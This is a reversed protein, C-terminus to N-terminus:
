PAPLGYLHVELGYFTQKDLIHGKSALAEPILDHPDTYWNHSYILWVRAHRQILQYLRPLDGETMKPELVGRDFLDVPLGHKSVSRTTNLYFDFPLQTWSAHYLILDGDQVHQAVYQAAEDWQEKAAGQGNSYYSRLSSANLAVLTVLGLAAPVRCRPSVRGRGWPGHGWPGHGWPGHPWLFRTEQGWDLGIALLLYLPISAWILTRDYFIPRRLSVLLEAAIPTVFVTALLAPLAPRTRLRYLGLLIVAVYLSWLLATGGITSPLFASMLNHIAGAVIGWTPTPLWFEHYVGAAQGIFPVIWPSWLALVGVQAAIWTRLPPPRIARCPLVAARDRTRRRAAVLGLVYLNVAVLFLIATNHTWLAASTFLIYAAWAPRSGPEGGKSRPPVGKRTGHQRQTPCHARLPPATLLYVWGLLALSVNLCLLTYMRAEQALYVHFPSLALVLAALLGVKRGALQRGLAYLVPINLTGALASLARVWSASSRPTAMQGFANGICMWLRLLLYYLPPHQDIRVLWSLMEPVPQRGMWVSFAEDIWLSKTGLQYFRLFGGAVTVALLM